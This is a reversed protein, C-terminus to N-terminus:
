LLGLLAEVTVIDLDQVRQIREGGFDTVGDRDTWGYDTWALIDSANSTLSAAPRSRLLARQIAPGALWEASRGDEARVRFRRQFEESGVAWDYTRGPRVADVGPRKQLKRQTSLQMSALLGQAPNTGLRGTRNADSVSVTPLPRATDAFAVSRRVMSAFGHPVNDSLSYWFAWFPRGASTAGCVLDGIRDYRSVGLKSQPQLEFPHEYRCHWNWRKALRLHDGSPFYQWGRRGAEAALQLSHEDMVPKAM